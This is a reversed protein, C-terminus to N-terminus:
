PAFASNNAAADVNRRFLRSSQLVQGALQGAYVTCAGQECHELPVTSTVNLPPFLITLTLLAELEKAASGFPTETNEHRPPLSMFCHRGNLTCRSESAATSQSKKWSGRVRRCM